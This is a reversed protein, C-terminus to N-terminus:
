AQIEEIEIAGSSSAENSDESSEAIEPRQFVMTEQGRVSVGVSIRNPHEWAEKIVVNITANICPSIGGRYWASRRFSVHHLRVLHKIGMPPDTNPPGGYFQFEFELIVLSPMAGEQFTIRPLRSHVTLRQLKAFDGNSIVIPKRPVGEFRLKLKWLYPMERLIKLDQEELKCIRIDLSGINNFHEKIWQLIHM